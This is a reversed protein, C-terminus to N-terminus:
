LHNKKNNKPNAVCLYTLSATARIGMTDMTDM